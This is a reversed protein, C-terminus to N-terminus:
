HENITVNIFKFIEGLLLAEQFLLVCKWWRCCIISIQQIVFAQPFISVLAGFSYHLSCLRWPPSIPHLWFVFKLHSLFHGKRSVSPHLSASYLHLCILLPILSLNLFNVEFLWLNMQDSILHDVKSPLFLYASKLAYLSLCCYQPLITCLSCLSQFWATTQTHIRTRGNILIILPLNSSREISGIGSRCLSTLLTVYRM